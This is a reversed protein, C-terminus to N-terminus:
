GTIKEKLTDTITKMLRKLDADNIRYASTDKMTPKPEPPLLDAIHLDIIATPEAGARKKLDAALKPNENVAGGSLSIFAYKQSNTKLQKLYPRLPSAAQGMWVPGVFLLLDYNELGSPAPQVRPTKNFIMDLIISGTSRRRDEMIKIREASFTEAINKAVAENNGTLSYSIVATKM